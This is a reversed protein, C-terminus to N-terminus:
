LQDAAIQGSTASRDTDVSRDRGGAKGGRRVGLALDFSNRSFVSMTRMANAIADPAHGADLCEQCRIALSVFGCVPKADRLEWETSALLKAEAGFKPAKATAAKAARGSTETKPRLTLSPIAGPIGVVPEGVVPEGVGSKWADTDVSSPNEPAPLEHVVVETAWRGADTQYRTRVLYGCTELELLAKRIADRGELGARAIAQSDVRWDDPKDLLWVLVGRARFSLRDDNVPERDVTTHRRRWDVRLIM